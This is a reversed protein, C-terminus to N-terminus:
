KTTSALILEEKRNKTWVRVEAERHLAENITNYREYYVLQVPRRPRTYKAGRPKTGNHEALRRDLDTTFGCYLSNDKCRVIYFYFGSM